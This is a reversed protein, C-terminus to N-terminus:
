PLRNVFAKLQDTARNLSKISIWEDETHAQAIDGPGFVVSPIAGFHFLNSADCFFDVGLPTKQRLTKMLQRVLPLDPDTELAACPFAKQNSVQVDLGKVAFLSNLEARIIKENEGPLTRRDILIECRDPVINPQRGGAIFGTNVSPNGLLAHRKKKLSRSYKEEILTVAQAMRHVANVGLEPRSGHAAKGATELRLWYDGKHATVLKNRTPEGVIALDFRKKSKGFKRSGTQDNEEDVLGVFAIETEKPRPGNTAIDLLMGFMAAISGKTDCAGRGYLRDNVKRPKFKSADTVGVTDMHPALLIRQKPRGGPPTLRAIVNSRGPFVKQFSIELGCRDAWHMLFDAVRHEGAWAPDAVPFAPNVSPLAILERLLKEPKMM